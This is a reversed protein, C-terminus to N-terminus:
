IKKEFLSCSLFLVAIRVRTGEAPVVLHKRKSCGWCLVLPGVAALRPLSCRGPGAMEWLCVLLDVPSSADERSGGM